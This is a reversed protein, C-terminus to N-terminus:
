NADPDSESEADPEFKKGRYVYGGPASKFGSIDDDPDRDLHEPKHGMAALGLMSQRLEPNVPSGLFEQIGKLREILVELLEQTSVRALPNGIGSDYEDLEEMMVSSAKRDEKNVFEIFSGPRWGLAVELKYITGKRPIIKGQEVDRVTADSGIGAHVAFAARAFGLEERRQKALQGLRRQMAEQGYERLEGMEDEEFGIDISM